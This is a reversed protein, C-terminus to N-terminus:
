KEKRKWNIFLYFSKLINLGKENTELPTPSKKLGQFGKLVSALIGRLHRIAATYKLIKSNKTL